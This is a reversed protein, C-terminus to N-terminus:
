PLKKVLPFLSDTWGYDNDLYNKGYKDELESNKQNVSEILETSLPPFNLENRRKEYSDIKKKAIKNNHNLFKKSLDDDYNKLLLLLSLAQEYFSRWIIVGSDPFGNFSITGIEEALRLLYLYQTIIVTDKITINVKHTGEVIKDIARHLLNIYSFFMRFVEKNANLVKATNRLSIKLFKEINITYVSTYAKLLEDDFFRIVEEIGDEIKKDFDEKSLNGVKQIEKLLTEFNESIEEIFLGEIKIGGEKM